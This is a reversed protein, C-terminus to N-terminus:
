YSKLLIKMKNFINYYQIQHLPLEHLYAKIQKLSRSHRSFPYESSFIIRHRKGIKSGLIEVIELELIQLIKINGKTFIVWGRDALKYLHSGFILQM